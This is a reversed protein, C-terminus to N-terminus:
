NPRHENEIEKKIQSFIDVLNKIANIVEELQKRSLEVSSGKWPIRDNSHSPKNRAKQLDNLIKHIVYIKEPSVKEIIVKLLGLRGWEKPISEKDIYRSAIKRLAKEQFKENITNNLAKVFDKWEKENETQVEYLGRALEEWRKGESSWIPGIQEFNIKELNKLHTRLQVLLSEQGPFEALFDTQLARESVIEKLNPSPPKENYRKWHLQERYPLQGLHKAYVIVQRTKPNFHYDLSWAGHCTITRDELQYKDPNNKYNDLVEPKFCVPSIAPPLHERNKESHHNCFNDPAISYDKFICKNQSDYIIFSEYKRPGEEEDDVLVDSKSCIPKRIHWGYFNAHEVRNGDSYKIKYKIGLKKTIGDKSKLSGPDHSKTRRFDFFGVLTWDGLHLLKDLTKKKIVILNIKEKDIIKIKEVEEGSGNIACYTGSEKKDSLHLELSHTILQNLELYNEREYGPYNKKFCLPHIAEKFFDDERWYPFLYSKNKSLETDNIPYPPRSCMLDGSLDIYQNIAEIKSPPYLYSNLTLYPMSCHLLIWDDYEKFLSEWDDSLMAMNDRDELNSCVSKINEILEKLYGDM